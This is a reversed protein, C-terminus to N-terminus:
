VTSVPSELRNLPKWPQGGAAPAPAPDPLNPHPHSTGGWGCRISPLPVPAMGSHRAPATCGTPRNYPWLLDGVGGNNGM